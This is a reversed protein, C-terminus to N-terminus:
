KKNSRKFLVIGYIICVLAAITVGLIGVVHGTSEPDPLKSIEKLFSPIRSIAYLGAIAGIVIVIIGNNQKAM